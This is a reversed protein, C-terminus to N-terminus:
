WLKNTKKVHRLIKNYDVVNIKTNFDVDACILEYGTLLDIKKVHRLVKNYDVVTIRGDGNVDGIPCIKFNLEGEKIVVNEYERTAHNNKSIRVTYVGSLISEISYTVNNGTVVITKSVDTEGYKIFEITIEDTESLYSTIKGSISVTTPIEIYESIYSEGCVTCIKTIYGKETETPLTVTEEYTHDAVPISITERSLEEGCVTCYVVTDYSGENICDPEVRNEEVEEGDSHGLAEITNTM